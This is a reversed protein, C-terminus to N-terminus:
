TSLNKSSKQGDLGQLCFVFSSFLFLDRIKNSCINLQGGVWQRKNISNIFAGMRKAIKRTYFVKLMQLIVYFNWEICIKKCCYLKVFYSFNFITQDIWFIKRLLPITTFFVVQSCWWNSELFFTTPKVNFFKCNSGKCIM